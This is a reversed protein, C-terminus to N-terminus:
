YAENGQAVTPIPVIYHSIDWCNRNFINVSRLTRPGGVLNRILIRKLPRRNENKFDYHEVM